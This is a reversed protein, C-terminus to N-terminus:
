ENFVQINGIIEQDFVIDIECVAGDNAGLSVWVEDTWYRFRPYIMMDDIEDPEGFVRKVKELSDGTLIPFHIKKLIEQATESLYLNPKESIGVAALDDSGNKQYVFIPYCYYAIVKVDAYGCDESVTYAIKNKQLIKLIDAAKYQNM